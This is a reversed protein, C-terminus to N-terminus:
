GNMPEEGDDIVNSSCSPEGMGPRKAGPCPGGAPVPGVVREAIGARVERARCVQGDPCGGM